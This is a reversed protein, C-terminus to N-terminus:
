VIHQPSCGQIMKIDGTPPIETLGEVGKKIRQKMAKDLSKLAKIAVRSYIIQM